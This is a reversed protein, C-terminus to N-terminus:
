LAFTKIKGAGNTVLHGTDSVHVSLKNIGSGLVLPNDATGSNARDIRMTFTLPTAAGTRLNISNVTMNVGNITWGTVRYSDTGEIQPEWLVNQVDIVPYYGLDGAETVVQIGNPTPIWRQIVLNVAMSNLQRGTSYRFYPTSEMTDRFRSGLDKAGRTDDVVMSTPDVWANRNGQVGTLSSGEPYSSTLQITSATSITFDKGAVLWASDVQPGSVYVELPSTTITVFNVQRQGSTLSITESQSRTQAISTDASRGILLIIDGQKLADNLLIKGNLTTYDQNSGRVLRSGNIYVEENGPTFTLSFETEGGVAVLTQEQLLGGVQQYQGTIDSLRAM